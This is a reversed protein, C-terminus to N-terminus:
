NHPAILNTTSMVKWGREKTLKGFLSNTLDKYDEGFFATNGSVGCAEDKATNQAPVRRWMLTMAIENAPAQYYNVLLPLRTTDDIYIASESCGMRTSHVYDNDVVKTSFSSSGSPRTWVSSGDDSITAFQYWGPVDIKPDLKATTELRFAFFEKLINGREDKILSGDTAPFGEDFKRTPVFLQKLALIASVKTGKTYFFDANRNKDSSNFAERQSSTLYYIEGVLGGNCNKDGGVTFPDCIIQETTVEFSVKEVISNGVKDAAQIEFLYTGVALSNGLNVQAVANCAATTRGDSTLGCNVPGVGSLLDTVEYSIIAPDGKKIVTPASVIRVLPPALDITWAYSAPLSANGAKDISQVFLTHGGPALSSVAFPSSCAGYNGSDIRCRFSDIGSADSGTFTFNAGTQNVYNAPGSTITVSPLTLDITWERSTSGQNGANDIARVDIKHKAESLGTLSKGTLSCDAFNAGDIRCEVVKVGSGNVDTALWQFNAATTNVFGAPGATINVIPNGTDVEWSYKIPTSVNGVNDFGRVEYTHRGDGINNLTQPATCTAFAATDLRCEFKTIPQGEDTGTFAFVAQKSAVIPAPTQTFQLVPATLDVAWTAPLAASQNGAKDVAYVEFKYTGQAQSAYTASTACPQAPESGLKCYFKDIGSGTDSGSFEVKNNASSSLAAPQSNIVVVPPTKDFLWTYPIPQSENGAKDKVKISLINQGELTATVPLSSTCATAVNNAGLCTVSEVGSLNDSAQWAVTVTADKTMLGVPNQFVATPAIDDHTIDDTVCASIDGLISKYQVFVNTKKNSELLTWPKGTTFTEWTGDSCDPLNSVKMDTARNSTLRLQVLGQNTFAADDNISIASNKEFNARENALFEPTAEFKVDSCNNFGIAVVGIICTWVFAFIRARM